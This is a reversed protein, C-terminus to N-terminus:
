LYKLKFLVAEEHSEFPVYTLYGAGDECWLRYGDAKVQKELKIMAAFERSNNYGRSHDYIVVQEVIPKGM